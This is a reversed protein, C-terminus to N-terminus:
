ARDDEVIIWPGNAWELSNIRFERGNEDIVRVEYGEPYENLFEIMDRKYVTV